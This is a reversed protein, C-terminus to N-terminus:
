TVLPRRSLGLDACSMVVLRQYAHNASKQFAGLRQTQHM